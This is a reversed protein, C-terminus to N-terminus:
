RAGVPMYLSPKMSCGAGSWAEGDAYKVSMLQVRTIGAAAGVMLSGSIEGASGRDASLDFTEKMETTKEMEPKAGGSEPVPLVRGRPELYYVALEVRSLGRGKPATLAVNVGANGAPGKTERRLERADEQSVTWEVKGWGQQQVTMSVPCQGMAIAEREGLTGGGAAAVSQSQAFAASAALLPLAYVFRASVQQRRPRM